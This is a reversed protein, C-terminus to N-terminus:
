FLYSIPLLSLNNTSEPQYRIERNYFKVTYLEFMTLTSVHALFNM